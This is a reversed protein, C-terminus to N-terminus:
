VMVETDLLSLQWAVYASNLPFYMLAASLTLRLHGPYLQLPCSVTGSYLGHSSQNVEKYKFHYLRLLSIVYM